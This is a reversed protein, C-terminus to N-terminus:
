KGEKDHTTQSMEIFTPFWKEKGISGESKSEVPKEKTLIDGELGLPPLEDIGPMQLESSELKWKLPYGKEVHREEVVWRTGEPTKKPPKYPSYIINGIEYKPGKKPM